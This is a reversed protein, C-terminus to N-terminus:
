RGQERWFRELEAEADEGSNVGNSVYIDTEIHGDAYFEIEWHQMPVAALVMIAEERNHELTYHIHAQELESLFELLRKYIDMSFRTWVVASCRPKVGGAWARAM